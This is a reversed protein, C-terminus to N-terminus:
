EVQYNPAEKTITINHPHSEKIGASTVRLFEANKQLEKINSSGTYGMGSQIGGVLQFVTEKLPGRYPAMAGIGEPVFKSSNNNQFYRDSSGEEMAEVSGMGRYTKYKRGRYHIIGGPTEETGAFLNGIMVADAGAALSKVIDGSYRIGGDAIVTVGSQKAVQSCEMIATIQPVGIGAVIRTTCTSGPGIGIKIADVGLDILRQAAGPTAINGAIVDIDKYERKIKKITEHINRSDAHASDIVLVDVGAQVLARARENTNEGTGIAAAVRLRQHDDKTALPFEELKDLDRKTILGQLVNNQDTVLLKEIRNQHLIQKAEQTPIGSNVTILEKTMVEKATSSNDAFAIDRKTVLGMLENGKVVPLGSINYDKILKKIESITDEPDITIPDVIIGSEAKKVKKVEQAQKEIAMNKHIVGIGGQRALSVATSAETITDMAASILPISLPINPTLLTKLNVNKPEVESFQPALLVDDFTLAEKFKM